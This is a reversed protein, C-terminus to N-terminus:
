PNRIEGLPMSCNDFRKFASQWETLVFKPLSALMMKPDFQRPVPNIKNDRVIMFNLSVLSLRHQFDLSPEAPIPFVPGGVRLFIRVSNM